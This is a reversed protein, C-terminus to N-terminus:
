VHLSYVIDRLEAVKVEAFDAARCIVAPVMSLDYSNDPMPRPPNVAAVPALRARLVQIVQELDTHARSLRMLAAETPSQSNDKGLTAGQARSKLVETPSQPRDAGLSRGQTGVKLPEAIKGAYIENM